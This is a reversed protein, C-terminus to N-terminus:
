VRFEPCQRGPHECGQFACLQQDDIVPPRLREGGLLAPIQEFDDIVAVLLAGQQDGALNGDITPMIEDAVGGEAIRDQVADDVAGMADFEFPWAQAFTM